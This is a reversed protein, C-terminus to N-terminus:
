VELGNQQNIWPAIESLHDFRALAGCEMLREIDHVGHTVAISDVKANAAMRIDYESDGIMLTNVRDTNLDTMLEEIMQPHPKSFTEDACRTDHFYKGFGTEKLIKDLGRRSKGTAVAMLYGQSNLKALLEEAGDFPLSHPIDDGLWHHRYADIIKTHHDSDHEPFLREVAERMGLGIINRTADRSPVESGADDAANQMCAVIRCESDMITGDWDFVILEYKNM